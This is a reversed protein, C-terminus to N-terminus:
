PSLLPTAGAARSELPPSASRSRQKLDGTRSYASCFGEPPSSRPRNPTDWGGMRHDPSRPRLGRADRFKLAESYEPSAYWTRLREMSPPVRGGGRAACRALGRRFTPSAGVSSAAGATTLFPRAALDRYSQGARTPSPVASTAQHRRPRNREHGNRARRVGKADHQVHAVVEAVPVDILTTGASPGSRM